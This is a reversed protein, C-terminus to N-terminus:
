TKKRCISNSKIMTLLDNEIAVTKQRNTIFHVPVYGQSFFYTDRETKIQGHVSGDVELILRGILFDVEYKGVRWKTKFKIHNRKLIEGIRREDKTSNTKRLLLLQNRMNLAM